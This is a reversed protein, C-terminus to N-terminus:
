ELTTIKITMWEDSRYKNSTEQKKNMQVANGTAHTNHM